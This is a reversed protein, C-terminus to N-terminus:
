DLGLVEQRKKKLDLDHERQLVLLAAELTTLADRQGEIFQQIKRRMVTTAPWFYSEPRIAGVAGNPPGKKVTEGAGAGSSPGAGTSPSTQRGADREETHLWDSISLVMYNLTSM